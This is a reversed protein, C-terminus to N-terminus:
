TAEWVDDVEDAKVLAQDLSDRAETLEHLSLALLSGLEILAQVMEAGPKESLLAVAQQLATRALAIEERRRVSASCAPDASLPTSM